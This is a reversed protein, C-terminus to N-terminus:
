FSLSVGANASYTTESHGGGLGIGAQVSVNDWLKAKVGIALASENEFYGYGAGIAFRKCPMVGPIAALASVSAIGVNAKDVAKEYVRMQRVNVADYDNVGNAVGSVRVPGGTSSKAFTAGGDNLTLSTSTTGGTLVTSSEGVTLGHTNGSSNTYLLSAGTDNTLHLSANGPNGSDTNLSVDGSDSTLSGTNAIGHTSTEGTVALNGGLTANGTTTLADTTIGGTNTLGHLTTAGGVNLTTNVQASNLTALGTTSLTNTAINGSNTIDGTNTLGHLTTAGNVNLTTSVQASNLTALGSTHLTATSIDGTNTINGTNSIGNTITTGTVSLNGTVTTGTLSNVDIRNGTEEGISVNTSGDVADTTNTARILSVEGTTSTGVKLEAASDQLTLSSSNTGGTLTTTDAGINLGHGIPGVNNMLSVTDGTTGSTIILGSTNSTGGLVSTIGTTDSVDLGAGNQTKLSATTAVLSLTSKATANGGNVTTLATTGGSDNVLFGGANGTPSNSYSVGISNINATLLSSSVATQQYGAMFSSDNAMLGSAKSNDTSNFYILNASTGNQLSLSADGSNGYTTTNLGVNGGHSTLAGTVTTGTTNNVTLKNTTGAQLTVNGAAANTSGITTAQGAVNATNIGGGSVTLNGTTTANGSADVTFTDITGSHLTAGTDTLTWTTTGTGGTMTASTTTASIGNVHGGANTVGISMGGNAVNLV